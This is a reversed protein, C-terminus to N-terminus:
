GVGVEDMWPGRHEELAVRLEDREAVAAAADAEAARLRALFVLNDATM